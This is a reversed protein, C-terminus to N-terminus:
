VYSACIKPIIKPIIPLYPIIKLIIALHIFFIQWFSLQQLM